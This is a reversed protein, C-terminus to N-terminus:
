DDDDRAPPEARRRPHHRPGALVDDHEDLDDNRLGGSRRESERHGPYNPSVDGNIVVEGMMAPNGACQCASGVRPRTGSPCSLQSTVCSSQATAESAGIGVVAVLLALAPLRRAKFIFLGM